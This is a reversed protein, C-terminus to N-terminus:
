KRRSKMARKTRSTRAAAQALADMEKGALDRWEGPKVGDLSLPGLRVRELAAVPSGVTELMRRVIRNKGEHVTIKVRHWDGSNGWDSMDVPEVRAPRTVGDVLEVGRELRKRGQESLPATLEAVYVKDIEFRPHAVRHSFLGDNTLLLLGSTEADLRGIPYIRELVSVLDIVTPRGQPDSLTTVYGPPKNLLLYRKREALIRRDGLWVEDVAPDASEGLSATKGNVVVRGATILEESKRRSAVGASALLKQIRQKMSTLKYPKQIAASDDLIVM